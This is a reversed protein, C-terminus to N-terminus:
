GFDISISKVFLREVEKKLHSFIAMGKVDPQKCLSEVLGRYYWEQEKKGENFRNWVEDGIKKYDSAITRVNHLKDACAVLRIELPATKLFEITHKKREKWPLSKDPETCGKVISAVKDGFNEQIYQLTISTDEIADHLIGAVIVEESCGAQSLLIAVSFPHTIYPIDTSKRNQNLHAKAAVEIAFDIL